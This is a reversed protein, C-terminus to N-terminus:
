NRVLAARSAPSLLVALARLKCSFTSANPARRVTHSAKWARERIHELKRVLKGRKKLLSILKSNEFGFAIARVELEKGHRWREEFHRKISREMVEPAIDNPLTPIKITYDAATVVDDEIFEAEFKETQQLWYVMGLFGLTGFFDLLTLVNFATSKLAEPNGFFNITSAECTAIVTLKVNEQPVTKTEVVFDAATASAAKSTKVLSPCYPGQSPRTYETYSDASLDDRFRLRRYECPLSEDTPCTVNLGDGFACSGTAACGTPPLTEYAATGNINIPHPETLNFQFTCSNQDYCKDAVIYPASSALPAPNWQDMGYVDTYWDGNFNSLWRSALNYSVLRGDVGFPAEPCRRCSPRFLPPMLRVRAAGNDKTAFCCHVPSGSQTIGQPHRKSFCYADGWNFNCRTDTLNSAGSYPTNLAAYANTRHSELYFSGKVDCASELTSPCLGSQRDPAVYTLTDYAYQVDREYGGATPTGISNPAPCSCGGQTDGVFVQLERM